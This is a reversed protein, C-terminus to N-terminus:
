RYNITLNMKTTVESTDGAITMTQTSDSVLSTAYGYKNDFKYDVTTTGTSVIVEFDVKATYSGKVAWRDKGGYYKLTNSTMEMFELAATFMSGSYFIYADSYQTIEEDTTNAEWSNETPKYTVDLNVVKDEKGKESTTITGKVDLQKYIQKSERDNIYAEQGAYAQEEFEQQSIEKLPETGGSCATLLATLGLVLLKKKM